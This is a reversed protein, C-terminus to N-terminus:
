GSFSSNELNTSFTETNEIVITKLKYEIYTQFLRELFYLDM